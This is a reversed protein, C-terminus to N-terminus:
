KFDGIIQYLDYRDARDLKGHMAALSAAAARRLFAQGTTCVVVNLIHGKEEKKFSRGQVGRSSAEWGLDLLTDRLNRYSRTFVLVDYDGPKANRNSFVSGYPFVHLVHQTRAIDTLIDRYKQSYEPSHVARHGADEVATLLDLM